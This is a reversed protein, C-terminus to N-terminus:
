FRLSLCTLGGDLTGPPQIWVTKRFPELTSAISPVEGKRSAVGPNTIIAVDPAVVAVDEVFHADPYRELPDLVTVAIGCDRLSKVYADFQDLAKTYDPAGMMATTIGAAMEKCPRRTIAHTFTM